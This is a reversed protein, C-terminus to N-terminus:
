MLQCSGADGDFAGVDVGCLREKDKPPQQQRSGAGAAAEAAEAPLAPPLAAMRARIEEERREIENSRREIENSRREIEAERRSLEAERKAMASRAIQEEKQREAARAAQQLNQNAEQVRKSLLPAHASRGAAGFRVGPPAAAHVSRRTVRGRQVAQLRTASLQQADDAARRGAQNDAQSSDAQSDAQSSDAQGARPDTPDPPDIPEHNAAPPPVPVRLSPLGYTIKTGDSGNKQPASAVSPSAQDPLLPAAEPVTQVDAANEAPRAHISTPALKAAQPSVLQPEAIADQTPPAVVVGSTWNSIRSRRGRAVSQLRNAAAEENRRVSPTKLCDLM